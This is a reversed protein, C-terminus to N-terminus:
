SVSPSPCFSEQTVIRNVRHFQPPLACARRLSLETSGIFSLPSPCLSEQTVIRNVRLFQPPFPLSYCNQQGWSVSPSHCLIERQTVMINVRHLQPSLVSDRRLSLLASGIFSLTFPMTEREWILSLWTWGLFGLTFPMKMFSSAFFPVPLNHYLNKSGTRHNRLVRIFPGFM